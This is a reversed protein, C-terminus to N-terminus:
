IKYRSALQQLESAVQTLGEATAQSEQAGSVFEATAQSTNQMGRTIQDMGSNQEQASAAIQAAAQSTVRNTQALQAIIQGARQALETGQEVVETGEQAGSVAARTARDIDGLIAQVQATAQKSQEALNRVEDAVVAFGKGQEGARAAEITANLALLNSQDAIDNVANTIEEIQATQESLAQVDAAIAEVKERIASMGEVIAEVAHTGDDGVHVAEEAQQAVEAAKQAALEASARIQETATTTQTIAASQQNAGATQKSVTALIESASSSISDAGSLVQGSLGALNEVMQNFHGGLEAFEDRGDADVRVTLDGEAVKSAFGSFRRVVPVVSAVILWALGVGLILALVTIVLTLTRTSSKVDAAHNKAGVARGTVSKVLKAALATTPTVWKQYLVGFQQSAAAAKAADGSTFGAAVQKEAAIYAQVKKGAAALLAAEQPTLYQKHFTAFDKNLLAIQATNIQNYIKMNAASFKPPLSASWAGFLQMGVFQDLDDKVNDVDHTATLLNSVKETSKASENNARLGVVALVALLACMVGFGAFLRTRLSFNSVFKM